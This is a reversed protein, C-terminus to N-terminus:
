LFHPSSSLSVCTHSPTVTAFANRHTAPPQLHHAGMTCRQYNWTTTALRGRHCAVIGDWDSQRAAATLFM